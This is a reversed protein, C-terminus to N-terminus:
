VITVTIKYRGNDVKDFIFSVDHIGGQDGKVIVIIIGYYCSHDFKFIIWIIGNYSKKDLIEHVKNWIKSSKNLKYM